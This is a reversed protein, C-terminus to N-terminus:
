QGYDKKVALVSLHLSPHFPNDQWLRYAKRAQKKTVDDLRRYADWFSPLTESNM